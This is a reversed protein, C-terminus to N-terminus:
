PLCCNQWEAMPEVQVPENGRVYWQQQAGLFLRSEQCRDTISYVRAGAQCLSKYAFLM